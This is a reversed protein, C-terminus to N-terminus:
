VYQSAYQKMLNKVHLRQTQIVCLDPMSKIAQLTLTLEELTPEAKNFNSKKHEPINKEWWKADTETNNVDPITQVEQMKEVKEQLKGYESSQKLAREYVFNIVANAFRLSTTSNRFDNIPLSATTYNNTGKVKQYVQINLKDKVHVGVFRVGYEKELQNIYVKDFGDQKEEDSSRKHKEMEAKLIEATLGDKLGDAQVKM